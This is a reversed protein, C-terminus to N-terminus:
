ARETIAAQLLAFQSRMTTIALSHMHKNKSVETVQHELSVDSGDHFVVQEMAERPGSLIDDRTSPSIARPNSSAEISQSLASRFEKVDLDRSQYGPTDMNALNGALLEHRRQAFVATQELAPIATTNFLNIM